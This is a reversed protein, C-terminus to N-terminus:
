PEEEWFFDKPSDAPAARDTWEYFWRKEHRGAQVFKACTTKKGSVEVVEVCKKDLHNFRVTPAVLMISSLLAIAVIVLFGSMVAWGSLERPEPEGGQPPLNKFVKEATVDVFDKM